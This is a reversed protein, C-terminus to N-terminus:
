LVEVLRIWSGEQPSFYRVWRVRAQDRKSPYSQAGPVRTQRWEGSASRKGWLYLAGSEGADQVRILPCATLFEPIEEATERLLVVSWSDEAARRWHLEGQPSFLRGEPWRLLDGAEAKRGLRCQQVEALWCFDEPQFLDLLQRLQATSVRGRGLYAQQEESV